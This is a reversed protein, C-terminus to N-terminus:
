SRRQRKSIKESRKRRLPRANQKAALPLFMRSAPSWVWTAVGTGMGFVATLCKPGMITHVVRFYTMAPKKKLGRTVDTVLPKKM